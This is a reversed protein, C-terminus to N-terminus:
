YNLPRDTLQFVPKVREVAFQMNLRWPSSFNDYGTTSKLREYVNQRRLRPNAHPLLDFHADSEAVHYGAPQYATLSAM